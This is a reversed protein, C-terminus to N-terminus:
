RINTALTEGIAKSIADPVAMACSVVAVVGAVWVSTLSAVITTVPM